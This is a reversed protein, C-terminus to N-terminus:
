ELAMSIGTKLILSLKYGDTVQVKLFLEIFRRKLKHRASVDDELVLGLDAPLSTRFPKVQVSGLGSHISCIQKKQNTLDTQVPLVEAGRVTDIVM